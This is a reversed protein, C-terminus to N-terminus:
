KLDFHTAMTRCIIAETNTIKIKCEQVIKDDKSSITHKRLGATCNM